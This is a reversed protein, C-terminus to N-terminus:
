ENMFYLYSLVTRVQGNINFKLSPKSLGATGPQIWLGATDGAVIVPSVRPQIFGPPLSGNTLTAPPPPTQIVSVGSPRSQFMVPRQSSNMHGVSQLSNPQIPLSRQTRLVPVGAITRHVITVGHNAILPIL